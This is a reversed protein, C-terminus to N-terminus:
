RHSLLYASVMASLNRLMDDWNDQEIRASSHGLGLHRALVDYSFTFAWYRQADPLEPVVPKLRRLADDFLAELKRHADAGRQAISKDEVAHFMLARLVAAETELVSALRVILDTILARPDATVHTDAVSGGPAVGSPDGDPGDSAAFLRAAHAGMRDMVREHVAHVLEGKGKFRSYITGTTVGARTAVDVLSFDGAGREALVDEAAALLKLESKRSREQQPVKRVTGAAEM